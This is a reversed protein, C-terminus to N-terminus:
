LMGTKELQFALLHVAGQSSFYQAEPEQCAKDMIPVLMSVISIEGEIELL